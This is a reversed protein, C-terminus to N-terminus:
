RFFIDNVCILGIVLDALLLMLRKKGRHARIVLVLLRDGLDVIEAGQGGLRGIAHLNGRQFVLAPSILIGSRVCGDDLQDVTDQDLRDVVPHAIDVDLGILFGKLHAVAHIAGQVLGHVQGKGDLIGQIGSYLDHGLEIDGLPPDGLVAPDPDLQPPVPGHIEPNGGQGGQEPLTDNKTDKVLATKIDIEGFETKLLFGKGGKLAADVPGLSQQENGAGRAAALRYGEIRHEVREVAFVGLDEGGFIRHLEVKLPDVLDIDFFFHAHGKGCRELGKEPLIGVDDHDALDPIHFGGLNGDLRGHSPMKNETGEVSIITGGGDAAQNINTNRGKHQGRGNGHNKGLPQRSLKTNMAPLLNRLRGLFLQNGQTKGLLIKFFTKNDITGLAALFAVAATILSSYTKKLQHLDGILHGLRDAGFHWLILQALDRHLFSHDGQPPGPHFLNDFAGGSYFLNQPTGHDGFLTEGGIQDMRIDLIVLIPIEDNALVIVVGIKEFQDDTGYGYHLITFLDGLNGLRALIEALHAGNGALGTGGGDGGFSSGPHFTKGAVLELLNNLFIGIHGAMKKFGYDVPQGLGVINNNFQCVIPCSFLFLLAIAKKRTM